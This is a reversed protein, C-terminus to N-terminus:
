RGILREICYLLSYIGLSFNLKSCLFFIKWHFPLYKTELQKYSQKYRESSIIKRIEKIKKIFSADMKLVNLGLGITSLAIRNQLAQKYTIELRNENIYDFIIDYLKQCQNYLDSKYKSTISTKNSKRYHYFITDIYVVKKIHSFLFVNFLLDESTEIIKNDIFQISFKKIPESRYLKVCVTAIADGDEPKALEKGILGVLRRHLKYKVQESNFILIKEDFYKKPKSNNPFERIYPWMIVDADYNLANEIAVKCTEKDIWDDSDLFMIYEGKSYIVGTNRVSSVGQNEQTIVSIRSDSEMYKCIIEFSRDTSGDNIIIIELNKYTQNVVSDLCECLYKEVNYVPIIISLLPTNM